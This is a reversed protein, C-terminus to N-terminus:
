ANQVRQRHLRCKEHALDGHGRSNTTQGGSKLKFIFILKIYQLLIYKSKFLFRVWQLNNQSHSSM